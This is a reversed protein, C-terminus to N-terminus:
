YDNVFIVQTIVNGRSHSYVFLQSILFITKNFDQYSLFILYNSTILHPKM